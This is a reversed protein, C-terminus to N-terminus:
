TISEEGVVGFLTIEESDERKVPGDGLWWDMMSDVDDFFITKARTRKPTNQRCKPCLDSDDEHWEGCDICRM